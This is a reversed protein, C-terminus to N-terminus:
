CQQLGILDNGDAGLGHLLIILRSPKGGAVPPRSPGTLAMLM